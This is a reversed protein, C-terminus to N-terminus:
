TQMLFWGGIVAIFVMSIIGWDGLREMTPDPNRISAIAGALGAVSGFISVFLIFINGPDDARARTRCLEASSRGIIRWQAILMVVIFTDWYIITRTLPEVDSPLRLSIVLGLVLAIAVASRLDAGPAWGAGAPKEGDHLQDPGQGSRERDRVSTDVSM